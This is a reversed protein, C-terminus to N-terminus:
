SGRELDKVMDALGADDALSRRLHEELEARGVEGLGAAAPGQLAREVLADIVATADLRGAALDAALASPEHAASGVSSAQASTAEAVSGVPEALVREFAGDAPKPAGSAGPGGPGELPPASPPGGGPPKISSTM